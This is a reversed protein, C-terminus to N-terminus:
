KVSVDDVRFTSQLTTDTTSRFQIRVTQGKYAALSLSKQSYTGVAAKNLNSYTALTALLTGSTNRVEVFLKDYATTTTTEDSTVNLWFTLTGTATSPITVQQYGQGVGNNVTGFYIYGTGAHPYNGPSVYYANAGSLVTPAASGEFGGNSFLEGGTPPPTTGGGPITGVGCVGWATAVTNYEASTAGYLDTAANLTATRAGAFNTSSTMYVTLARYWILQAKDAGIGTVTTGPNVHNTGGKAVLYFAKNAIGSNIHVGGNDSSGTYRENYNDPDDDSTFGSNAAQHPNDMYRLADGATGPTFADEGIKWTNASEGKAYREIMSGFVDSMSENLAGSEGQYILGATRETVGHTLEHGCIDITVLPTFTTGDGDGFTMKQGDWFANNYRTSYHVFASILKNNTNNFAPAFGPGGANDIGNRGHVNKFYDYTLSLGYHADVGAKQNATDFVNDTDTFRGTNSTASITYSTGSRSDFTGIKRTLDEMYYTSGVLSTGITVTGSYLSVGTGTQLNDYNWVKKGTHADIFYVPMSTKNTNDVRRLQVRYVLHDKDNRRLVWLDAKPADTLCTDCGYIAVAREIAEKDSLDPQTRVSVNPVLSDTMSLISGDAKIHVIAEGGFVPVGDVSQQIRTHAMSLDDVFVDKIKLDSISGIGYNSLKATLYDNSLTRALELEEKSGAQFVKMKASSKINLSFVALIAVVFFISLFTIRRM